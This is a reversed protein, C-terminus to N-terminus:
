ILSSCMNHLHVLRAKSYCGLVYGPLAAIEFHLECEQHDREPIVPDTTSNNCASLVIGMSTTLGVFNWSAVMMHFAVEFRAALREM